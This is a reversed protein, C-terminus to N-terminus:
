RLPRVTGGDKVAFVTRLAIGRGPQTQFKKVVGAISNADM